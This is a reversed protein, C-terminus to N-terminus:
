QTLNASRKRRHFGVNMRFIVFGVHNAGATRHIVGARCAAINSDANAGSTMRKERALLFEDIRRASNLFKGPAIAAGFRGARALGSLQNRYSPDDIGATGRDVIAAM